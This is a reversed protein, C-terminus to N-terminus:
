RICRSRGVKEREYFPETLTLFDFIDPDKLAQQVLDSQHPPLTPAFNSRAEGLRAHAGAEIQLALINRSWGNAITQELYWCRTILNKIKEM